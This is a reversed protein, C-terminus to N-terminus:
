SFFFVCARVLFGKGAGETGAGPAAATFGQSRGVGQHWSQMMIPLNRNPSVSHSSRLMELGCNVTTGQSESVGESVSPKLERSM